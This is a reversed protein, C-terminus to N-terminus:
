GTPRQGIFVLVTVAPGDDIGAGLRGLRESGPALQDSGVARQGGSRLARADRADQAGVHVRVMDAHGAPERALEAAPQPHCPEFVQGAAGQCAVGAPLRGVLGDAKVALGAPAFLREIDVAGAEAAKALIQMRQGVAKPADAVALGHVDARVVPPDDDATAMRGLMGAQQAVLQAHQDGAVLHQRADRGIHAHEGGLRIGVRQAVPDRADGVQAGRQAVVQQHQRRVPLGKTAQVGPQVAECLAMIAAQLPQASAQGVAGLARYVDEARQEGPRDVVIAVQQAQGCAFAQGM